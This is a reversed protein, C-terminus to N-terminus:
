RTKVVRRRLGKGLHRCYYICGIGVITDLAVILRLTSAFKDEIVKTNNQYTVPHVDTNNLLTQNVVTQNIITTNNYEITPQISNFNNIQNQLRIIDRYEAISLNYLEARYESRLMSLNERFNQDIFSVNDLLSNNILLLINLINSDACTLNLIDLDIGMLRSDLLTINELLKKIYEDFYDDMSTTYSSLNNLSDNLSNLRSTFNDTLNSISQNLGSLNSALDKTFPLDSSNMTLNFVQNSTLDNTITRGITIHIIDFSGFKVWMSIPASDGVEYINNYKWNYGNGPNPSESEWNDYSMAITSTYICMELQEGSTLTSGSKWNINLRDGQSVRVYADTYGGAVPGATYDMDTGIWRREVKAQAPSVFCMGILMGLAIGVLVTSRMNLGGTNSAGPQLSVYYDSGPAGGRSHSSKGGRPIQVGRIILTM